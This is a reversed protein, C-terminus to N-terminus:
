IRFSGGRPSTESQMGAVFPRVIGEAQIKAGADGGVFMADVSAQDPYKVGATTSPLDIGNSTTLGGTLTTFQDGHLFLDRVDVWWDGTANGGLIDNAGDTIKKWSAQPDNSLLAPLWSKLDDLLSVGPRKINKFYVKPRCCTMGFLFGPERIYRKKSAREQFSWMVAQSVDSAGATVTSPAVHASPYQFTRVYRILEPVNVIPATVRVGFSRLYDEYTMDVLNEAKLLEYTQMAQIIDQVSVTDPTPTADVPIDVDVNAMGSDLILSQAWNEQMVYAAPKSDITCVDYADGQDRFYHKICVRLCADVWDIGTGAAIWGTYASSAATRYSEHGSIDYDRDLMMAKFTEPSNLDRHKVYFFYFESWWGILPSVVEDTLVRAQFALNEMTEGPLVPAIFFPQIVYPEFKVNFIHQPARIKRSVQPVSALASANLLQVTRAM